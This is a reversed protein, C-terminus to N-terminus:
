DWQKEEEDETKYTSKSMAIILEFMHKAAQRNPIKYYAKVLEITEQRHMPDVDFNETEEALTLPTSDPLSFMRPSQKAVEEDMDEYFFNVPVSLVKGIDWLRSAGVRNMGREYKQVQQFTLGLMEALKEQSLGLLQRRLRIRNGVHVDIPNAEGNPLRGRSSKRSKLM